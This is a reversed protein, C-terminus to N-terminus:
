SGGEQGEGKVAMMLEYLQVVQEDSMRDLKEKELREGRAGEEGEVRQAYLQWETLFGM